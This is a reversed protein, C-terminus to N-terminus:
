SDLSLILQFEGYLMNQDVGVPSNSEQLKGTLSGFMPGVYNQWLKPPTAKPSATCGALPLKNDFNYQPVWLDYKLIWEPKGMDSWTSANIYPICGGYRKELRSCLEEAGEQWAPTVAHAAYRELDVAPVIDGIGYGVSTAAACFADFQSAAPTEVHFFHYLGMQLVYDGSEAMRAEQEKRIAAVHYSLGKSKTVNETAKVIGYGIRADSWPVRGDPQYGSVDVGYTSVTM